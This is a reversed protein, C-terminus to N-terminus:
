PLYDPSACRYSVRAELAAPDLAELTQRWAPVAAALKDLNERNDSARPAPDSDNIDFSAGMCHMGARAPAIYGVHCLAARLGAFAQAGPLQTIQGRISQLPLWRCQE